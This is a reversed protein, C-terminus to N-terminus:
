LQVSIIVSAGDFCTQSFLSLQITEVVKFLTVLSQTAGITMNDSKPFACAYGGHECNRVM